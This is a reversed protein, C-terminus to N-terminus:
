LLKGIGFMLSFNYIDDQMVSYRYTYRFNSALSLQYDGVIKHRIEFGLNFINLNREKETLEMSYANNSGDYFKDEVAINVIRGLSYGGTFYFKFKADQNINTNFNFLLPIEAVHFKYNKVQPCYVGVVAICAFGSESYNVPLYNIGTQL